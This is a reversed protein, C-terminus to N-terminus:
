RQYIEVILSSFQLCFLIQRISHHTQFCKRGSSHLSVLLVSMPWAGLVNEVRSPHLAEFTDVSSRSSSRHTEQVLLKCSDRQLPSYTVKKATGFQTSFLGVLILGNGVSERRCTVSCSRLISRVPYSVVSTSKLSLNSKDSFTQVLGAFSSPRRDRNILRTCRTAAIKWLSMNCQTTCMTCTQVPWPTTRGPATYLHVTHLFYCSTREPSSLSLQERSAKIVDEKYHSPSRTLREVLKQLTCKQFGIEIIVKEEKRLVM